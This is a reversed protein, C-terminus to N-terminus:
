VRLPQLGVVARVEEGRKLYEYCVENGQCFINKYHDLLPEIDGPEPKVAAEPPIAFGRFVNYDKGTYYDRKENTEPRFNIQEYEARYM